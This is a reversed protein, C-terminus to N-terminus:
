FKYAIIILAILGLAIKIYQIITEHKSMTNYEQKKNM